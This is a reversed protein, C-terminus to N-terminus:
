HSNNMARVSAIAINGLIDSVSAGRSCDAVTKNFGQLIPGFSVANAFLQISKIGINGANLDPWIIINANGAVKSDGKIKKSAVDPNLASDLQFEGEIMLDPRKENALKVAEVVKDVLVGEGSGQSSYSLMACRPEWDLLAAFTECVSIAISALEEATPNQCVASDGFGILSGESGKFGPIDVIGCSSVTAVEPNLGLFTQSSLIVNGTTNEIGAFTCDIKGLAQLMLAYYLPDSARRMLGKEGYMSQGTKFYESVLQKQADENTVDVIEFLTEDIAYKEIASLVNAKDGVLVGTIYGQRIAEQAALLMKENEAEPFALRAPNKKAKNYVKELVSM